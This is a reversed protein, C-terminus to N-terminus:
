VSRTANYMWIVEEGIGQNRITYNDTVLGVGPNGLNKNYFVTGNRSKVIFRVNSTMGTTDQYIVSLNYFTSNLQYVPLSTAARSELTNNAVYKGGLPVKINYEQDSPYLRKTASVGSSTNTIVLNYEISKFMSFSVGGNDDATGTMALSSNTMQEAVEESIGYTSM